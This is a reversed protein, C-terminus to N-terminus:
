NINTNPYNNNGFLNCGCSITSLLALLLLLQTTSITNNNTLLFLLAILVLNNSSLINVEVCFDLKKSYFMNHSLYKLFEM